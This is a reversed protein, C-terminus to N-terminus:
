YREARRLEDVTSTTMPLAARLRGLRNLFATKDFKQPPMLLIEGSPSVEADLEDGEKLGAVQLYETPLRVALSNGWKTIQLRMSVERNGFEVVNHIRPEWTCPM